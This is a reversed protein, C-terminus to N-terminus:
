HGAGDNKKQKRCEEVTFRLAFISTSLSASAIVLYTSVRTRFFVRSTVVLM